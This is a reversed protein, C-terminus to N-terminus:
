RTKYRSLSEAPVDFAVRFECNDGLLIPCRAGPTSDSPSGVLWALQALLRGPEPFSYDAGETAEEADSCWSGAVLLSMAPPTKCKLEGSRFMEQLLLHVLGCVRNWTELKRKPYKRFQGSFNLLARRSQARLRM